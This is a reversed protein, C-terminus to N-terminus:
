DSINIAKYLLKEGNGYENRRDVRLVDAFTKLFGNQNTENSINRFPSMWHGRDSRQNDHSGLYLMDLTFSSDIRSDNNASHQRTLRKYNFHATILVSHHQFNFAKLKNSVEVQNIRKSFM